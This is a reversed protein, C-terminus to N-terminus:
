VKEYNKLGSLLKELPFTNLVDKKEAWGRRAQAIGFELFHLQDPSHADTDIVMKVGAEVCKRIQGDNLDLRDPWADIELVTETEKAAAIVKDWDLEIAKRRNLIRGSPHFIIDVQPNKMVKILRQTQTERSLDFYSHVAAGVIDLEALAENDLDLTGDKMINVEVGKLIRFTSGEAKFKENLKDIERGQERLQKEDLGGTMALSQAHDTIAIYDHGLKQAAEAMEAITNKGDTWNTHMQLDGRLDKYGILKPLKNERAAELEGKNERLEPEIYRLGLKEYIEEETKGAIMKEGRFLGYENLKWGNKLALERLAVNHDKSGTFYNLAAGFSEEPVARVDLDVGSKLRLSTKTKGQGYVYEVEPLKIVKAMTAEPRRSVVLIDIDGITEKRRRISGGAVANKVEPFRGLAKELAQAELLIYGLLRRSGSEKLFEIGKLIKAESKEGFGELERIKGAQAAKELEALNKIKLKDWLVKVTRPGVGEVAVLEGLKVPTQKKMQDYERFRGSTLLEEIHSAITKGVGSIGTLAEAGKEQYSEWLPKDLALVGLAAREYARPKFEVEQMEYLAAMELLIDALEKNSIYLM